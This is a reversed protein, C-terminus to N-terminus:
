KPDLAVLLLGGAAAANSAWSTMNRQRLEGEQKWFPHGVITTPVILGLLSLASLRPLIGLAMTSAAAVMGAGNLKVLDEGAVDVDIAYEEKAADVVPGLHSANKFQNIGGVVFLGSILSRAAFKVPNPM